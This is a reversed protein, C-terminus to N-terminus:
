QLIIFEVRRNRDRGTATRNSEIPREPGYGVAEIREPAVGLGMLHGRVADARQQSLKLNFAAKGRSDTHGEIRVRIDPRAKIAAAVEELLAFSREQIRARATDFFIKQRLEIKGRTVEILKFPEPCGGTGAPGPENPCKDVPDDIGDKDNDNDPCGDDDDFQDADEPEAPCRDRADPVGDKDNDDDPCGDHDEFGDKDEASAPCRDKDDPVGDADNDPDPCGDQDEYGDRDEGEGPCKDAADEIGDGDRDTPTATDPTAVRCRDPPSMRIAEAVSEEAAEVHRRARFYDGQSLEREAFVVQTDALALARPACQYAGAARATNLQTRLGEVRSQLLQGACGGVTALALAMM